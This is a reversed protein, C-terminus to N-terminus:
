LEVDSFPRPPSGPPDSPGGSSSSFQDVLHELDFGEKRIRLNFYVLILICGGLPSILVQTLYVICYWLFIKFDVAYNWQILMPLVGKTLFLGAIYNIVGLILLFGFIELKKGKTLFFSRQISATISTREIILAQSALIFGMIIYIAPFLYFVLLAPSIYAFLGGPLGIILAQLLVLGIVPFFFRMVNNMYESVTQQKKLYKKSVLEIILAASLSNVALRIVLRGVGGLAVKVDGSFEILIEPINSFLAILFLAVFNDFYLNFAEGLIEGFSLKRLEYKM